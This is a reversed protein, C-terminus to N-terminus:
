AREWIVAALAALIGLVAGLILADDWAGLHADLADCLRELRGPAPPDAPHWSDPLPRTV